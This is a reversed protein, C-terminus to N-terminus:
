YSKLDTLPDLSPELPTQTEPAIAEPTIVDPAVEEPVIIEPIVAESALTEFAIAEPAIAEPAIAEPAIAEPAIAEPAVAEPQNWELDNRTWWYRFGNKIMWESVIELTSWERCDGRASNIRLPLGDVYVLIAWAYPRKSRDGFGGGQKNRYIRYAVAYEGMRGQSQVIPLEAQTIVGAIQLYTELSDNDFVICWATSKKFFSVYM